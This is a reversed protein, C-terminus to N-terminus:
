EEPESALFAWWPKQVRIVEGSEADVQVEVNMEASFLGLFKSRRQTKVEYALKMEEGQGVEKLEISCEGEVCNKLRLRELAKESAVDPMLKIEVNRGNSLKAELKTRNQVQSQTLNLGCNASVENVRLQVQNNAQEQIMMQQGGEGVYNGAVVKVGIGEGATPNGDQGGMAVVADHESGTGDGPGVQGVVLVMMLIGVVLVAMERKM